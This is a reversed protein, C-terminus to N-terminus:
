DEMEVVIRQYRTLPPNGDDIVSCIVHLTEGSAAAPPISLSVQPRDAQEIEIPGRCTGAETYVWWRFRLIDGDPDSSQSADLSIQDGPKATIRLDSSVKVQPPHNAEAFDKVCWDLRAAWDNQFDEAWRLISHPSVSREDVSKWTEKWPAFRGGWGGYAPDEYSRLGNNIVHLFAPSDGESRFQGKKAEYMEGLPGHGNLVNAEMWPRDFYARLDESMIKKWPYAIAEFSPWDSLLVQLGPWEPRIYTALTNDQEAILFLRTKRTVEAVRDPHEDKITKLARAITNAGGWAQLWVPSDDPKLLVEVIRNSGPTPKEIDGEYGVNGVYVRSRLLDPPPFGPDHKILSPYVQEYADLQRDLWVEPEWGKKNHSEDGKWHFKSSSHIIGQVDWENTCLLFRVMSCRDDIEGDTTAIVRLRKADDVLGESNQEAAGSIPVTTLIAVLANRLSRAPLQFAKTRGRM